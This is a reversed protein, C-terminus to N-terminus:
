KEAAPPETPREEHELAIVARSVARTLEYHVERYVRPSAARLMGRAAQVLDRLVRRVDADTTQSAM